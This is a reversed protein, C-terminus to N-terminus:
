LDGLEKNYIAVVAKNDKISIIVGQNEEIDILKKRRAEEEVPLEIEINEKEM